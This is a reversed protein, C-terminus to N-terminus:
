SLVEYDSENANDPRIPNKMWNGNEDIPLNWGIPSAIDEISVPFKGFRLIAEDLSIKEYYRSREGKAAWYDGYRKNGRVRANTGRKDTYIAISAPISPVICYLEGLTSFPGSRIRKVKQLMDTESDLNGEHNKNEERWPYFNEVMKRSYMCDGAGSFPPRDLDACFKIIGEGTFQSMLKAHSNHTVRRQADLSICGIVDKNNQYFNVYETLWGDLIFQMDGQLPIIYEGKSLSCVLNLGKAFENAPDREPQRIVTVGNQALSDLYESTGKETSANDVVIFEKEPYESTTDIISEFCSKLYHLRNCNIIGFTVLPRTM